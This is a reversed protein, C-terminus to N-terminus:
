ERSWAIQFEIEEEESDREHAITVMAGKPVAIREGAIQIVFPKGDELGKALRRIKAIFQPLAYKKEIDRMRKRPM